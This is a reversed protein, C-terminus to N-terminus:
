NERASGKGQQSTDPHLKSEMEDIIQCAAQFCKKRGRASRAQKSKGLYYGACMGAHCVARIQEETWETVQVGSGM